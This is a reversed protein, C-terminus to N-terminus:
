LPLVENHHICINSICSTLQVFKSRATYLIVINNINISVNNLFNSANSILDDLEDKANRLNLDITEEAM